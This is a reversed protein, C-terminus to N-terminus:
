EDQLKKKAEGLSKKQAESLQPYGLDLSEITRVIVFAVMVRALWKQDAPIIYWPAHETSTASLMEEYAKTYQDWFEREALDGPSFKWQKETDSLRDLFRSRQEDKSEHLFFKLIVTGNRTLHREIDNISEFREEWLKEGKEKGPLRQGILIEPHVRVVLVEEYYSRNFIGIRGREPMAAYCRWMFDHDLEIQSPTKFGTVECGQPNVGSMVHEIIGDKGAADMGQLIILMSYSDEAWLLEQAAALEGKSKELIEKSNDKTLKLGNLKFEEAKKWSTPYETLKVKKGAPVRIRELVRAGNDGM